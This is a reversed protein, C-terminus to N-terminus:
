LAKTQIKFDIFHRNPLTCTYFNYMHSRKRLLVNQITRISLEDM